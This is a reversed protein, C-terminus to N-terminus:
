APIQEFGFNKGINKQGIKLLTVLDDITNCNMTLPVHIDEYILVAKWGLTTQLTCMEVDHHCQLFPLRDQFDIPDM